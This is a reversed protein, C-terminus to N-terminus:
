QFVFTFDALIPLAQHDQTLLLSAEEPVDCREFALM